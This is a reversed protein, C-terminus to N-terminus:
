VAECEWFFSTDAAGFGSGQADTTGRVLVAHLVSQLLQSCGRRRRRTRAPSRRLVRIRLFASGQSGALFLPTGELRLEHVQRSRRTTVSLQCCGPLM